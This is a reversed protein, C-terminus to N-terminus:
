QLAWRKAPYCIAKDIMEEYLAVLREKKGYKQLVSAYDEM